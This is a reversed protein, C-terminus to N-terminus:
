QKVFLGEYLVLRRLTIINIVLQVCFKKCNIPYDPFKPLLYM